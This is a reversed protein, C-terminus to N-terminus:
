SRQARTKKMDFSSECAMRLVCLGVTLPRAHSDEEPLQGTESQPWPASLVPFLILASLPDQNHLSIHFAIPVELGFGQCCPHFCSNQNHPQASSGSSVLPLLLPLFGCVGGWWWLESPQDPCPTMWPGPFPLRSGREGWENMWEDFLMSCKSHALHQTTLYPVQLLSSFLYINRGEHCECELIYSVSMLCLIFAKYLAM